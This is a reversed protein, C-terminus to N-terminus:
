HEPWLTIGHRTRRRVEFVRFCIFHWPSVVGALRFCSIGREYYAPRSCFWILPGTGRPAVRATRLLVDLGSKIQNWGSGAVTGSFSVNVRLSGSGSEPKAAAM